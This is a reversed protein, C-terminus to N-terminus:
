YGGPRSAASRGGCRNGIADRDNNIKCNGPYSSSSTGIGATKMKDFNLGYIEHPKVNVPFTKGNSFRARASLINSTGDLNLELRGREMGRKATLPNCVFTLDRSEGYCELSGDWSKVSFSHLISATLPESDMESSTTCGAVSICLVIIALFPRKMFDGRIMSARHCIHKFGDVHHQPTTQYFCNLPYHLLNLGAGHM